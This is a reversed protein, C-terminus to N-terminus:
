ASVPEVSAALTKLREIADRKTETLYTRYEPKSEKWAERLKATGEAAAAALDHEWDAFGPPPQLPEVKAGVDHTVADPDEAMGELPICFTLFAAYKYAVSMAKNTAKDATDMSEGFTRATHRSADETSIFDFEAEVVVSFLPDGKKTTRETMQRSLIRPIVVLGHQSLIPSLANLTEDIGRFKYGQQQNSRSKSIGSKALDGSVAAILQYVNRPHTV